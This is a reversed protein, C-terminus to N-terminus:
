AKPPGNRKSLLASIAPPTESFLFQGCKIRSELDKKLSRLWKQRKDRISPKTGAFARAFPKKSNDYFIAM